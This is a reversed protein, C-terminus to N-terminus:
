DELYTKLQEDMVKLIDEGYMWAKTWGVVKGIAQEINWKPKWGFINKIKTCDLKLWCSEYPGNEEKDIRKIDGGWTDIFIDVLKGTEVCANMDPGINYSGALHNEEYQCAAIMLYAYLAEIVHQYPRISHPHRLLINEHALASRVCDPIVRNAAFDGGGIVNGVRVTSIPIGSTFFSNRYGNTVYESCSKSNSYPDFGDLVDSEKYAYKEGKNKYVKDTTVNLFSGINKPNQRICELINVTGMINTEYTYRPNKYSELVLPQAAMHIVIEPNTSEFAKKLLEFDRIDGYISCIDKEMQTMQFLSMGPAQLSYGTVSAGLKVLIRCLWAGKFGTHGTIFVKKGKYFDLDKFYNM